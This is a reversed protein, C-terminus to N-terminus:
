KFTWIRSGDSSVRFNMQEEDQKGKVSRKDIEKNLRDIRKTANYVKGGNLNKTKM